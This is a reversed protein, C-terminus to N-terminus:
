QEGRVNLHFVGNEPHDPDNDLRALELWDMKLEGTDLGDGPLGLRQFTEIEVTEVGPVARAAAYLPNVYISQGFDIREPAFLGRQGDPWVGNSFVELLAERVKSRTYGSQVTVNMTIELPVYVPQVIQVDSGVMRFREMYHRLRSEFVDLSLTDRPEAVLFLTYWSGTWRLVANARRVDAMTEALTKADQPIVVREQKQFVGPLNLRVSDISEPEKGGQAPLPNNVGIIRSDGNLMHAISDAGINGIVGNGVRYYATFIDGAQPRAGYQGDGFRLYTTGDAESETVFCHDSPGCNLLDRRPRWRTVGDQVLLSLATDNASDTNDAGKTSSTSSTLTIVPSAKYSQVSLTETASAPPNGENYAVARTLPTYLLSPNFRPLVPIAPTDEDCRNQPTSAFTLTSDPVSAFDKEVVSYGHDALVINGLAVSVDSIYQHGHEYDTTASICLPFPLADEFAWEIETIDLSYDPEEQIAVEEIVRREEERVGGHRESREEVIIREKEILEQGPVTGELSLPATIRETIDVEQEAPEREEKREEREHRREHSSHRKLKKTRGRKPEQRAHLHREEPKEEQHHFQIARLKMTTDIDDEYDDDAKGDRPEEPEKQERHEKQEEIREEHREHKGREYRSEHKERKGHSGHRERKGHKRREVTIEDEEEIYEELVVPQPLPSSSPSLLKGLPDKTVTVKTLRVACRHTPEADEAKGTHPSKMEQFILVDGVQLHPMADLLTASTAGKPLSCDRSGWTYFSMHNHQQYLNNATEITQFLLPNAEMAQHYSVSGEDIHVHNEGFVRTFLTTGKPLAAQTSGDPLQSALIDDSVQVQVWVRANKGDHMYYGLLRAHRKVSIRHRATTLYSETAIVDQRYSLYDGVYALLEVLMVGMDAESRETWTPILTTLRDLMLRRFSNFDRAMYDIEPSPQVEPACVPENLPDIDTSDQYTFELTSFMTDLLLEHPDKSDPLLRLTYTLFNKPNDTEIRLVKPGHEPAAEVAYVKIPRTSGSIQVHNKILTRGNLSNIFHVLLASRPSQPSSPLSVVELYDIGNVVKQKRLANRREDNCCVYMSM